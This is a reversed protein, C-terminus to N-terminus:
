MSEDIRLVVLALSEVVSLRVQQRPYKSDHKWAPRMLGLMWFLRMTFQLDNFAKRAIFVARTKKLFIVWPQVM